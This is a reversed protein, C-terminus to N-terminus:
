KFFDALVKESLKGQPTYDREFYGEHGQGEPFWKWLFGGAWWDKKQFVQHMAELCNAQAQQNIKRSEIGKELEWNRWGCNDVTLYGYESFLIPRNKERSLNELRAVIPQWAEVLKEVSPTDSEVLPFYGGLGIFDLDSWFPVREWDDWNASYTLKGTYIKRTKQILKKWFDPRRAVLQNFETGICFMEVKQNEALEAFFLIYKEYDNEWAENDEPKEFFLAGVWSGGVWVQPKLMVKLGNEHALRITESVGEPNEGWWHKKSKPDYFVKPQGNKTFAYPVVAIWNAGIERIPLMPNTSFPAPPAVFTLGNIKGPSNIRSNEAPLNQTSINEASQNKASFDETAPKQLASKATPQNNKSFFKFFVLLGLIAFISLAIKM